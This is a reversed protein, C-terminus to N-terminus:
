VRCAGPAFAARRVRTLPHQVHEATRSGLQHAAASAAEHEARGELRRRRRRLLLHQECKANVLYENVGFSEQV